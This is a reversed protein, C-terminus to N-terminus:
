GDSENDDDGKPQELTGWGMYTPDPKTAARMEELTMGGGLFLAPSSDKHISFAPTRGDAGASIRIPGGIFEVEIPPVIAGEPPAEFTVKRIVANQSFKMGGELEVTIKLM